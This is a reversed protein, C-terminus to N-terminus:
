QVFPSLQVLQGASQPKQPQVNSESHWGAEHQLGVLQMVM